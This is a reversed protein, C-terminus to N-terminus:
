KADSATKLLPYYYSRRVLLAVSEDFQEFVYRPSLSDIREGTQRGVSGGWPAKPPDFASRRCNIRFRVCNLLLRRRM